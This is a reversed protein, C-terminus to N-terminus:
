VLQEPSLYERDLMDEDVSDEVKKRPVACKMM